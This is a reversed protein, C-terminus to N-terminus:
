SVTFAIRQLNLLVIIAIHIVSNCELLIVTCVNMRTYLICTHMHLIQIYMLIIIHLYLHMFIYM